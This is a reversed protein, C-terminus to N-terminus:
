WNQLQFYALFMEWKFYTVLCVVATCSLLIFVPSPFFSSLFPLIKEGRTSSSEWFNDLLLSSLLYWSHKGYPGWGIVDWGGCEGLFLFITLRLQSFTCCLFLTLHKKLLANFGLLGVLPCYLLLIDAHLTHFTCSLLLGSQFCLLPLIIFLVTLFHFVHSIVLFFSLCVHLHIQQWILYVYVIFVCLLKFATTLFEKGYKIGTNHMLSRSKRTWLSQDFRISKQTISWQVNIINAYFITYLFFLYDSSCFLYLFIAQKWRRASFPTASNARVFVSLRQWSDCIAGLLRHWDGIHAQCM